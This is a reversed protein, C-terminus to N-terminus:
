EAMDIGHPEHVSRFSSTALRFVIFPVGFGVALMPVFVIACIVRRAFSLRETKARGALDSGSWRRCSDLRARSHIM